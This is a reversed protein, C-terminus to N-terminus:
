NLLALKLTEIKYVNIKNIKGELSLELFAHSRIEEMVM